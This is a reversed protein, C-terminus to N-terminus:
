VTSVTGTRAEVQMDESAAAASGVPRLPVKGVPPL